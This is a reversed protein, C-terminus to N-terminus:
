PRRGGCASTRKQAISAFSSNEGFKTDLYDQLKNYGGDTILAKFQACSMSSTVHYGGGATILGKVDRYVENTWGMHKPFLGSTIVNHSIVTEAAMDGVIANPFNVGDRQLRKVNDMDYREITDPRAQDLVILVVRSPREPAAQAPAAVVASLAVVLAALKRHSM